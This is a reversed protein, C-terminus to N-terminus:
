LYKKAERRTLPALQPNNKLFLRVSDPAIKSHDRLAWGAAKQIFFEKSDGVELIYRYLLAEDTPYNKYRQFIIAVRQLWFNGSDMWRRTVPIVQEPYKQFNLSVMKSIWDVTDWWSKTIIMEELFDIFDAAQKKIQKEVMTVGLYHLERYDEEFCLRTFAILEVGSFKGFAKFLDNFIVKQQPSKVGYFPFLNRMYDAQQQGTEPHGAESLREIAVKLFADVTQVVEKM